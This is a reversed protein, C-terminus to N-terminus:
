FLLFPTKRHYHIYALLAEPVYVICKAEIALVKDKRRQVSLFIRRARYRHRLEGRTPCIWSIGDQKIRFIEDGMGSVPPRCEYDERAAIPERWCAAPAMGYLDLCVHVKLQVSLAALNWVDLERGWQEVATVVCEVGQFCTCEFTLSLRDRERSLSNFWSLTREVDLVSCNSHRGEVCYEMSVSASVLREGNSGFHM